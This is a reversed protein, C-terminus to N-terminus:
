RENAKVTNYEVCIMDCIGEHFRLLSCYSLGRYVDSWDAIVDFEAKKSCSM